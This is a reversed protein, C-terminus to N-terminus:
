VSRAVTLVGIVCFGVGVARWVWVPIQSEFYRGEGLIRAGTKPSVVLIVGLAIAGAAVIIGGARVQWVGTKDSEPPVATGVEVVAGQGSVLRFLSKLAELIMFLGFYAVPIGAVRASWLGEGQRVVEKDYWFWANSGMLKTNLRNYLDLLLAPRLLMLVGNGLVFVGSVLIVLIGIM